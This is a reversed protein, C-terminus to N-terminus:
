ATLGDTGGGGPERRFERVVQDCLRDPDLEGTKAIEVIKLVILDTAPDDVTCNMRLKQCVKRFASRMAEIHAPDIDYKAFPMSLM